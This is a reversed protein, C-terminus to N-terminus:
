CQVMSADGKCSSGQYQEGAPPRGSRFPWGGPRLNSVGRQVDASFDYCIVCESYSLWICVFCLVCFYFCTQRLTPMVHFELVAYSTSNKAAALM